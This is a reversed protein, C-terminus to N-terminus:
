LLTPPELHERASLLAAVEAILRPLVQGFAALPDFHGTSSAVLLAPVEAIVEVVELLAIGDLPAASELNDTTGSPDM